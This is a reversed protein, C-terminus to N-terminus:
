KEHSTTTLSQELTSLCSDLRQQCGLDFHQEATDIVCEGRPLNAQPQLTWQDIKEPALRQIAQYDEEAVRVSFTSGMLQENAVKEEIWTLLLEPQTAMEHQIVLGAIRTVLALTAERQQQEAQTYFNHLTEVLTTIPSSAQEFLAKSAAMGAFHGQEYGQQKGEELGQALGQAHGEAQGQQFGAKIAEDILSHSEVSVNEELAGEVADADGTHLSPFRYPFVTKSM